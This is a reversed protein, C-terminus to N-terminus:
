PQSEGAGSPEPPMAPQMEGISSPAIIEGMVDGFADGIGMIASYILIADLAAGALVFWHGQIKKPKYFILSVDNVPIEREAELAEVRMVLNSPAQSYALTEGLEVGTLAEGALPRICNIQATTAEIVPPPSFLWRSLHDSQENAVVVQYDIFELNVRNYGYGNVRCILSDSPKVMRAYAVVVTDGPQPLRHSVTQMHLYDDFLLRYQDRDMQTIDTLKGLVNVSDKLTLYVDGGVKFSDVEAPSLLRFENSGSSLAAALGFGLLTCCGNLTFLSFLLALLLSSRVRRYSTKHM